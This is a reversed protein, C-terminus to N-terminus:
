GMASNVMFLIAGSLIAAAQLTIVWAAVTTMAHSRRFLKRRM